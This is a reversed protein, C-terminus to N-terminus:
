WHKYLSLHLIYLTTIACIESQQLSSNKIYFGLIKIANLLFVLM